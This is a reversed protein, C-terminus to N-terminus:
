SFISRPTSHRSGGSRGGRAAPVARAAMGGSHAEVIVLTRSQQGIDGARHGPRRVRRRGQLLRRAQGDRPEGVPARQVHDLVVRIAPAQGDRVGIRAALGLQRRQEAPPRRTRVVGADPAHEAGSPGHDFRVDGVRGEQRGAHLVVALAQDALEAGGAVDRHRQREIRLREADEGQHGGTARSAEAVGVDCQGLRERPHERQRELARAQLTLQGVDAPPLVVDEGHEGVLETRRQRRHQGPQLQRPVGAVIRDLAAAGQVRDLAVSPRQSM